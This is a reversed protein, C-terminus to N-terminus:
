QKMNKWFQEQPSNKSPGLASSKYFTTQPHGKRNEPNGFHNQQVDNEDPFSTKPASSEELVRGPLSGAKWSVMNIVTGNPGVPRWFTMQEISIPENENQKFM